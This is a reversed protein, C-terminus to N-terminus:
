LLNLLEDSEMSEESKQRERSNVKVTSSSSSSTNGVLRPISPPRPIDPQGAPRQTVQRRRRKVPPSIGECGEEGLLSPGGMHSPPPSSAKHKPSPTKTHDSDREVSERDTEQNGPDDGAVPPSALRSTQTNRDEAIQSLQEMLRRIKAKKDNLVLKFKRYLDHETDEKLSVCKELRELATQRERVLREKEVQLGSIEERLSTMSDIAFGLLQRHVQEGLQPDLTVVGLQFKINESLLHKKWVLELSGSSCVRMSYVFHLSGMNERTLAKLTESYFEEEEMKVKRAMEALQRGGLRRSWAQKGDSVTIGLGDGERRTLVYLSCSDDEVELQALSCHLETECEGFLVDM